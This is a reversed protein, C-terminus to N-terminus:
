GVDQYGTIFYFRIKEKHNIDTEFYYSKFFCLGVETCCLIYTYHWQLGNGIYEKQTAAILIEWMAADESPTSDSQYITVDPPVPVRSPQERDTRMCVADAAVPSRATRNAPYNPNLQVPRLICDSMQFVYRFAQILQATIGRRSSDLPVPKCVWM